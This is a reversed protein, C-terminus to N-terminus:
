AAAEPQRANLTRVEAADEPRLSLDLRAFNYPPWPGTVEINLGMPQVQRALAAATAHFGDASADPVLYAANLALREGPPRESANRAPLRVAQEAEAALQEHCVEAAADAARAQEGRLRDKRARRTLYARGADDDDAAAGDDPIARAVAKVGWERRGRLSDLLSSLREGHRNLLRRVEDDDALITCFRCPIVTAEAAVSKIVNDHARVKQEVWGMNKLHEDLAAAGFQGLSVDSVVASLRDHSLIRPASDTVGGLRDVAPAGDTIAYVYRATAGSTAKSPPPVSQDQRPAEMTEVARRLLVAKFASRILEKVEAEAEARAAEVLRPAGDGAAGAAAALLRQLLEDTPREM